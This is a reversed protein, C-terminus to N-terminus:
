QWRRGFLKSMLRQCAKSLSLRAGALAVGFRFAGANRGRRETMRLSRSPDCREEVAHAGSRGSGAIARPALGLWRQCAALAVGFAMTARRTLAPVRKSKSVDDRRERLPSCIPEHKM